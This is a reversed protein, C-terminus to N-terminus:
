HMGNTPAGLGTFGMAYVDSTRAAEFVSHHSLDEFVFTPAADIVACDDSRIFGAIEKDTFGSFGVVVITKDPNFKGETLKKFSEQKTHIVIGNGPVILGESNAEPSGEEATIILMNQPSMPGGKSVPIFKSRGHIATQLNNQYAFQGFDGIKNLKLAMYATESEDKGKQKEIVLFRGGSYFDSPLGDAFVLIKGIPDAEPANPLIPGSPKNLTPDFGGFSEGAKM